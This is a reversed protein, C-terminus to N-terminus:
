IANERLSGSTEPSKPLNRCYCFLSGTFNTFCKTVQHKQYFRTLIVNTRFQNDPARSPTPPDSKMAKGFSRM